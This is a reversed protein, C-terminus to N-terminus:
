QLATTFGTPFSFGSIWFVAPASKMAWTRVQDIRRILDDIWSVLTKLSHYCFKWSDPVKNEYLSQMIKELEESILVLGKIGKDVNILSSRVKNLLKNYRTIEQILVIKLPNQDQPRVKDYVEQM